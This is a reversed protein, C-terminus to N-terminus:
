DGRIGGLRRALDDLSAQWAADDDSEAWLEALEGTTRVHGIAALAQGVLAADPPGLGGIASGVTDSLGDVPAAGMAAVVEAAAVAPAGVELDLYGEGTAATLADRVAAIGQDELAYVWDSADDNEFPGTGWAGM